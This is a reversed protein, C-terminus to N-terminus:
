QHNIPCISLGKREAFNSLFLRITAQKQLFVATVRLKKQKEKEENWKKNYSQLAKPFALRITTRTRASALDTQVICLVAFLPMMPRIPETPLAVCEYHTPRRNSDAM